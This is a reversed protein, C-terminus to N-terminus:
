QRHALEDSAAECAQCVFASEPDEEATRNLYSLMATDVYYENKCISCRLVFRNEDTMYETPEYARFQNADFQERIAMM